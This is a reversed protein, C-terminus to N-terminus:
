RFGGGQNFLYSAVKELANQITKKYNQPIKHFSEAQYFFDGISTALANSNIM